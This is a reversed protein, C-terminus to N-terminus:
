LRIEIDLLLPRGNRLRATELHVATTGGTIQYLGDVQALDDLPRRGARHLAGLVAHRMRAHVHDPVLLVVTCGKLAYRRRATDIASRAWSAGRIIRPHARDLGDLQPPRLEISPGPIVEKTLHGGCELFLRAGQRQFFRLYGREDTASLRVGPVRRKHDLQRGKEVLGRTAKVITPKAKAPPPQM